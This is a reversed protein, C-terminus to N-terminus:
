FRGWQAQNPNVNGMGLVGVNPTNYMAGTNYIDAAGMGVQQQQPIGAYGLTQQQQVNPYDQQQYQGAYGLAVGVDPQEGGWQGQGMGGFQQQQAALQQQEIWQKKLIHKQLKPSIEAFGFGAGQQLQQQIPIASLKDAAFNFKDALNVQASGMGRALVAQALASKSTLMPQKSSLAAQMVLPNRAKTLQETRLNATLVPLAAPQAFHPVAQVIPQVRTHVPLQVTTKAQNLLFNLDKHMLRNNEEALQDLAASGLPILQPQQSAWAMHQAQAEALDLAQDISMSSLDASAASSLGLYEQGHLFCLSALLLSFILFIKM